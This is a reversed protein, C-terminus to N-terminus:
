SKAPLTDLPRQGKTRDPARLVLLLLEQLFRQAKADHRNFEGAM